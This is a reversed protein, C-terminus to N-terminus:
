NLCTITVGWALQYTCLTDNHYIKIVDGEATTYNMKLTIVGTNQLLIVPNLPVSPFDGPLIVDNVAYSSVDVLDLPYNATPCGGNNIIFPYGTDLITTNGGNEVIIKFRDTLSTATTVTYTKFELIKGAPYEPTTIVLGEGNYGNYYHETKCINNICQCACRTYLKIAEKVCGNSFTVRLMIPINISGAVVASADFVDIPTTTGSQVSVGDILWEWGTLTAGTPGPNFSGLLNSCTNYGFPEEITASAQTCDSGVNIAISDTDPPCNPPTITYSLTNIGPTNFQITASSTTSIVVGAPVVDNVLRWEYTAGTVTNGTYVITQGTNATTIQTLINAEITNGAIVFATNSYKVCGNPKTIKLFFSRETASSTVTLPTILLDNGITGSQGVLLLEFNGQWEYWQWTSGPLYGMNNYQTQYVTTNAIGCTPSDSAITVTGECDTNCTPIVIDLTDSCTGNSVSATVTQLTKSIGTVRYIGSGLPTAIVSNISVQTPTGIVNITATIDDSTESCEASGDQILPGSVSTINISTPTVINCNNTSASINIAGNVSIPTFVGNWGTSVATIVSNNLTGGSATVIYTQGAGNDQVRFNIPNGVCVVGDLIISPNLTQGEASLVEILTVPCSAGTIDNLLIATYTGAGTSPIVRTGIGNSDLIMPSQLFVGVPGSLSFSSGPAGTITLTSSQNGCLSNSFSMTPVIAPLITVTNTAVYQVGDVTERATITYTGEAKNTFINSSQFNIGDISYEVNPGFGSTEAVLNPNTGGNACNGKAYITPEPTGTVSVCDGTITIEKTVVCGSSFTATLRVIGIGMLLDEVGTNTISFKTTENTLPRTTDIGVGSVKTATVGTLGPHTSKLVEILTPNCTIFPNFDPLDPTNTYNIPCAVPVIPNGLYRQEFRISTIAETHTYIFNNTLNGGTPVLLQEVSDNIVMWYYTQAEIPIKYGSTNAPLKKNVDCTTFPFVTIKRGCPDVDYKIEKPCCFVVKELTADNAKCGCDIKVKYNYNNWLEGNVDLNYDKPNNIKDIWKTGVKTGYEKRFWGSQTYVGTDNKFKLNSFTGTTSKSWIFLPKRTSVNDNLKVSIDKLTNIYACYLSPTTFDIEYTAIEKSGYEICDNGQIKVNNVKIVIKAKRNASITTATNGFGFNETKLKINDVKNSMISVNDVSIANGVVEPIWQNFQNKTEFTITTTFTGEVLEDDGISAIELYDKYPLNNKFLDIKLDLLTATSNNTVCPQINKVRVEIPDCGCNSKAEYEAILECGLPNDCNENKKLTFKDTCGNGECKNDQSCGCNYHTACDTPCPFNKCSVCRNNYCTCNPDLCPTSGDCYDECNNIPGCVTGKCECGLAQECLGLCELIHCPVCQKRGEFMVCGCDKGCDAGNNCSESTCPWYVCEGNYCRYGEPCIIPKCGDPTCKLCPDGCSADDTCPQPVCRELTANWVTGACCVCQKNVCCTKGDTRSSCDGGILCDVCNGTSPDCAGDCPVAVITGNVCVHCKDLITNEDCEVCIGNKDFTGQPCVCKCGNCIKNGTCPTTANCECCTDGACFEGVLCKSQCIGYQNCNECGSPCDADTSCFCRKFYLPECNACTDGFQVYGEICSSGVCDPILEVVIYDNEKYCPTVLCTDSGNIWAISTPVATVNGVTGRLKIKYSTSKM